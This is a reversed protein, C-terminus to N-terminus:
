DRLATSFVMHCSLSVSERAQVSWFTGGVEHTLELLRGGTLM